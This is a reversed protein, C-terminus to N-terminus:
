VAKTLVDSIQEKIIAEMLTEMKTENPGSLQKVEGDKEFKGVIKTEGDVTGFAMEGVKLNITDLETDTPIYKVNSKINLSM